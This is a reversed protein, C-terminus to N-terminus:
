PLRIINIDSNQRLRVFYDSLVMERQDEMIKNSIQNRASEVGGEKASTVSKVYFSMFGGKGDPVIPSFNNVKTKELLSALEPSIRDYPIVQENTTIEPSYFMPNDIKEQLREQDKASNIIVDFSSPHTFEDQHLEYYEEVEADSPPNMASYSIASYLKQSLLKQEVKEKLETSSLGNANRVAEYFDAVSMNNRQATAKIDEYVEESTVSLKREQIETEELAKRILIDSAQKADVKSLAMEKKVDYLTIAKEKVVVAVGDVIEANLLSAFILTFFIKYM